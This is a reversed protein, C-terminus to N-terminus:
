HTTPKMAFLATEARKRLQADPCLDRINMFIKRADQSKELRAFTMALYFKYNWADDRVNALGEQLRRAALEFHGNRYHTVGDELAQHATDMPKSEQPDM